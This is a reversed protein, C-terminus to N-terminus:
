EGEENARIDQQVELQHEDAYSWAAVLDAAQLAPYDQLIESETSGLERARVLVWVPIRTRILRARGGCVGPTKVISWHYHPSRLISWSWPNLDLLTRLVQERDARSLDPLSGLIDKTEPM